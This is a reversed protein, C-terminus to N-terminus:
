LYTCPTRGFVRACAQKTLSSEMKQRMRGSLCSKTLLYIRMSVKLTLRWLKSLFMRCSFFNLYYDAFAPYLAPTMSKSKAVTGYLEYITSINLM